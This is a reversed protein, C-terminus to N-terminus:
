YGIFAMRIANYQVLKENALYIPFQINPIYMETTFYEGWESVYSTVIAKKEKKDIYNDSINKFFATIEKDTKMPPIEFEIKPVIHDLVERNLKGNANRYSDLDQTNLIDSYSEARMMSFPVIYDGVKVLFGSYAM